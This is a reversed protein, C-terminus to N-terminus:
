ITQSSGGDIRESVSPCVAMNDEVISPMVELSSIQISSM